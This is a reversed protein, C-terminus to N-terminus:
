LWGTRRLQQIVLHTGTMRVDDRQQVDAYLRPGDRDHRLGDVCTSKSLDTMM